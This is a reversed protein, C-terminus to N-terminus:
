GRLPGAAPDTLKSEVVTTTGTYAAAVAPVESVDQLLALQRPSLSPVAQLCAM